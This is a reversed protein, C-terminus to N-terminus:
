FKGIINEATEVIRGIEQATATRLRKKRPMGWVDFLRPGIWECGRCGEFVGKLTSLCAKEPKMFIVKMPHKILAFIVKPYHNTIGTFSIGPHSISYSVSTVERSRECLAYMLYRKANGYVRSAQPRDAFDISEELDKGYANLTFQFYYPYGELLPLKPLMPAPNKTWFVIGDVVEPSLSIRSIQHPDMPNRTCVFGAELRGFFWDSYYSPIDTQRSASIIM